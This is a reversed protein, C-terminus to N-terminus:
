LDLVRMALRKQDEPAEPNEIIMQWVKRDLHELQNERERAAEERYMELATGSAWGAFQKIWLAAHNYVNKQRALKSAAM